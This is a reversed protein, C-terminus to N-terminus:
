ASNGHISSLLQSKVGRVPLEGCSRMQRSFVCRSNIRVNSTFNRVFCSYEENEGVGLLLGDLGCSIECVSDSEKVHKSEFSFVRHVNFSGRRHQNLTDDQSTTLNIQLIYVIDGLYESFEQFDDCVSSSSRVCTSDDSKM